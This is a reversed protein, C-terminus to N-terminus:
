CESDLWNKLDEVAYSTLDELDDEVGITEEDIMNLSKSKQLNRSKGQIKFTNSFITVAINEM